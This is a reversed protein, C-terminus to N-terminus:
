EDFVGDSEVTHEILQGMHESECVADQAVVEALTSNSADVKIKWTITEVVRVSYTKHNM